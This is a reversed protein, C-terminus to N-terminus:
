QLKQLKMSLKDYKTQVKALEEETKRIATDISTISKQREM